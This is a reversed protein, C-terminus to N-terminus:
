TSSVTWGKNTAIAIEEESMYGKTTTSLELTANSSKTALKNFLDLCSDHSLPCSSVSFSTIASNSAWNNGWTVNTLKSCASLMDAMNTVNSTNFSSLEVSTLSSCGYFMLQMSCISKGNKNLFVEEPWIISTLSKCLFFMSELSNFDNLVNSGINSFDFCSLNVSTLSSCNSFMNRMGTVKSTNWSSIDLEKLNLCSSFLSSLNTCESTDFNKLILSEAKCSEFSNSADNWITRKLTIGTVNTTDIKSACRVLLVSFDVTSDLKEISTFIPSKGSGGSQIEDIKDAYSRFTDSDSVTVGKDTLAQKIALKTNELYNLRDATTSMSNDM